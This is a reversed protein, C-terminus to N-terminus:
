QANITVLVFWKSDDKFLVATDNGDNMSFNSGDSTIINGEDHRIVITRSASAPKLILIQGNSGGNITDLNDSSSSEVDVTHFSNITTIAGRLDPFDVSTSLKICSYRLFFM